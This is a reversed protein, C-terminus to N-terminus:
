TDNEIIKDDEEIKVLQKGSITSSIGTGMDESVIKL